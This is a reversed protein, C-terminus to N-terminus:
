ATKAAAVGSEVHSTFVPDHVLSLTAHRFVELTFGTAVGLILM